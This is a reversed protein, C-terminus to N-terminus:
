WRRQRRELVETAEAETAWPGEKKKYEYSGCDEFEEVLWWGDRYKMVDLAPCTFFHNMTVGKDMLVTLHKTLGTPSSGVVM